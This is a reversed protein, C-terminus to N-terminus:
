LSFIARGSSWAIVQVGVGGQRSPKNGMLTEEAV